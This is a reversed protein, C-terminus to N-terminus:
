YNNMNLFLENGKITIDKTTFKTGKYNHDFYHNNFRKVLLEKQPLEVCDKYLENFMNNRVTLNNLNLMNNIYDNVVIDVNKEANDMAWQKVKGM